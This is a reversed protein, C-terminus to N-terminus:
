EKEKEEEKNGKKMATKVVDYGFTAICASVFGESIALIINEGTSFSYLIYITEAALLIFVPLLRVLEFGKIKKGKLWEKIFKGIAVVGGVLVADMWDFNEM